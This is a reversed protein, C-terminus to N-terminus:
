QQTLARGTRDGGFGVAGGDWDPMPSGYRDFTAWKAGIILLFLCAGLVFTVVSKRM